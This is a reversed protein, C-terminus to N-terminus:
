YRIVEDNRPLKEKYTFGDTIPNNIVLFKSEDIEMSKKFDQIMDNSQCIISDLIRFSRKSLFSFIRMEKEDFKSRTSKVNAERGVFKINRFFPSILSMITNTHSISSIVVNPKYKILTKIIDIISRSVRNNNLYIENVDPSIEYVKDKRFGIILLYPEFSSIDLNSAIYSMVREAGGARLSPLVFMIRLKEPKM